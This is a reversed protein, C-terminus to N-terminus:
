ELNDFPNEYPTQAIDTEDEGFPNAFTSENSFPNEYTTTDFPNKYESSATASKSNEKNLEDTQTETKPPTIQPINTQKQTARGTMRFYLYSGSFGTVTIIILFTAFLLPFKQNKSKGLTVSSPPEEPPPSNYDPQNPSSGSPPDQPPSLNPSFNPPAVTSPSVVTTPYAHEHLPTSVTQVPATPSLFSPMAPSSAPPINAPSTEWPLTSPNGSIGVPDPVSNIPPPPQNSPFSSGAIPPSSASQPSIGLKTLNPDMSKNYLWLFLRKVIPDFHTM